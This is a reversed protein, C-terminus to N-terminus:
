SAECHMLDMCELMYVCMGLCEDHLSMAQVEKWTMCVCPCILSGSGGELSITAMRIVLRMPVSLM